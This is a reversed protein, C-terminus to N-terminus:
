VPRATIATVSFPRSTSSIVGLSSRAAGWFTVSAVNFSAAPHRCLAAQIGFVTECNLGRALKFAVGMNAGAPM